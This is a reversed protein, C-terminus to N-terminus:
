PREWFSRTPVNAAVHQATAAASRSAGRAGDLAANATAEATSAKQIAEQALGQTRAMTQESQILRAKLEANEASLEAFLIILNTYRDELSSLQNKHDKKLIDIQKNAHTTEQEAKTIRINLAENDKLLRAFQTAHQNLEKSQFTLTQELIAIRLKSTSLEGKLAFMEAQSTAQTVQLKNELEKIREDLDSTEGLLGEQGEALTQLALQAALGEEQSTKRNSADVVASLHPHYSTLTTELFSM